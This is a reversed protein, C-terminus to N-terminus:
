GCEHLNSAVTTSSQIGRSPKRVAFMQEDYVLAYPLTELFREEFPATESVILKHFQSERFARRRRASGPVHLVPTLTANRSLRACRLWRGFALLLLKVLTTSLFM